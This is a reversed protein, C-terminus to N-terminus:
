QGGPHNFPAQNFIRSIAQLRNTNIPDDKIEFIGISGDLAYSVFARKTNNKDFLIRVPGRGFPTANDSDRGVLTLDNSTNFALIESNQACSVLLTNKNPAVRIDNAKECLPAQGKTKALIAGNQRNLDVRMLLNPDEMIVYVQFTDGDKIIDFGVIKGPQLIHEGITKKDIEHKLDNTSFWLLRAQRATSFLNISSPLSDAAILVLSVNNKEELIQIGGLHSIRRYASEEKKPFSTETVVKEPVLDQLLYTRTIKLINRELSFFELEGYTELRSNKFDEIKELSSKDNLYGIIGKVENGSSPFISLYYPDHWLWNRIKGASNPILDFQVKELQNTPIDFLHMEDRSRSLFLIKSDKLLVPAEAFSSIPAFSLIANTNLDLKLISGSKYRLDQNYSFVFLQNNTQLLSSPFYARDKPADESVALESCGSFCILVAFFLFFSIAKM